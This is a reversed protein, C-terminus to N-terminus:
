VTKNQKYHGRDLSPSYLGQM